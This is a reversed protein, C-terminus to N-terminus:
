RDELLEFFGALGDHIEEESAVTPDAVDCDLILVPVDLESLMEKLLKITAYGQRCGAHAYFVTGDVKYQKASDTIDEM